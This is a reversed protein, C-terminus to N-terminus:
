KSYEDLRYDLSTTENVLKEAIKKYDLELKEKKLFENIRADPFIINFNQGYDSKNINFYEYINQKYVKRIYIEIIDKIKRNNLSKELGNSLEIM